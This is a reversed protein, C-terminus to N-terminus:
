HRSTIIYGIAVFAVIPVLIIFAAAAGAAVIIAALISVLIVGLWYYFGKKPGNREREQYKLHRQLNADQRARKPDCARCVVSAMGTENGCKICTAM